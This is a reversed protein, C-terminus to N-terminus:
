GVPVEVPHAVVVFNSEYSSAEPRWRGSCTVLVLRHAGRQDFTETGSALLLKDVLETSVVRYRVTESGSRLTVVDDVQLSLLRTFFGLGQEASDIHGALVTSGFPDGAYAGGDWWGVHHVDEPVQLEGAVTRAPEVPASVGGPLDLSQPVFRVRASAAQVGRRAEPPRSRQPEVAEPVAAPEEQAAVPPASAPPREAMTGASSREVVGCGALVLLAAASAAAVVQANM